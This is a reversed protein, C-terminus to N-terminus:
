WFRDENPIPKNREVAFPNFGRKAFLYWIGPSVAMENDAGEWYPDSGYATGMNSAYPFGKNQENTSSSIMAKKMEDLYYDALGVDGAIRWVLAMQATGEMFVADLDEDIDYGTITNGTVTATQTTLFRDADDLTAEPFDPFACYGWSFNDVAYAYPPNEPWSMLSTGDWRAEELYSLLEAHFSNYGRVASFADIMGETVKYQLLNGDADYGAWLGGDSAQLGILWAEIASALQAYKQTGTYDHYNNIAILLWANDGMWRHWSPTGNRDRFQSFGGPGQDFEIWVRQDFFDLIAEAREVQGDLLFAMVSLANDYLSVVNGDEASELLGNDLEQDELWSMISLELTSLEYEARFNLGIKNGAVLTTDPFFSYNTDTATVWTYGELDEIKWFGNEDTISSGQETNIIIGEIGNGFPDLVTGQVSYPDPSSSCSGFITITVLISALIGLTRLERM